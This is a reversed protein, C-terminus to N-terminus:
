THSSATSKEALVTTRDPLDSNRWGGGLAQALRVSAIMRRTLLDVATRENALAAGQATVVELYTTIGGRYRNQALTLSREAAAVAVAQERAERSLVRLTALEDEVEGFATLAQSRYAAVSADYAARAEETIARRKGGDFLTQVVTSGISWFLNPASFLGAISGNEFGASASLLVRPFFAATAMGVQANAAAVRREAAAVDPRRELLQSPLELPIEPPAHELPRRALSFDEPPVGVLIAIAHELQARSAGVDTSQARTTELQTEAQSVDVGSVAGHEYRNRTLELAREYAAVSSDLLGAVADLGRLQWYDLALEAHMSLRVSELDAASAQAVAVNAEVNRRLRGWVDAEWSLDLPLQFDNATGAGPLSASVRARAATASLAASPFLDARAARAAARAGRFQAGAIALTQNSVDVRGELANLEPEDFAEWWAGRRADDEPRAPTWTGGAPAEKYAAPAAFTPEQYKPGVACSACVLVASATVIGRAIM